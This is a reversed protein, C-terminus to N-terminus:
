QPIGYYAGLRERVFAEDEASVKSGWVIAGTMKGDFSGNFNSGLAQSGLAFRDLTLRGVDLDADDLNTLISGDISWTARQGDFIVSHVHAGTDPAETSDVFKSTGGDDRRNIRWASGNHSKAQYWVDTGANNTFAWLFDNPTAGDNRCSLIVTVRRKTGSVMPVVGTRNERLAWLATSTGDFVAVPRNNMGAAVQYLPQRAVGPASLFYGGRQAQNYFGVIRAESAGNAALWQSVTQIAWNIPEGGEDPTLFDEENNGTAERLRFHPGEYDGRLRFFDWAALPQAFVQDLVLTPKTAVSRIAHRSAITQASRM